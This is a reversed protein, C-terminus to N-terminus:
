VAGGRKGLRLEQHLHPCWLCGSSRGRHSTCYKAACSCAPASDGLCRSGPSRREMAVINGLSVSDCLRLVSDACCELVHLCCAVHALHLCSLKGHAIMLLRALLICLGISPIYLLREGIHTGVYLLLNSSPLFPAALLGFFVVVAWRAGATSRESNASSALASATAAPPMRSPAQSVLRSGGRTGGSSSSGSSAPVPKLYGAYLLLVATWAMYALLMYLAATLVNRPDRLSTVLPVCNFSWDASLRWPVLLLAFYRAHLHGTSLVRTLRSDVFAIPNEVQQIRLLVTLTLCGSCVILAERQCSKHSIFSLCCPGPYIDCLLHLCCKVKRFVSLLQQGGSVAQRIGVYAATVAALAAARLAMHQARSVHQKSAASSAPALLLDFLLMPM